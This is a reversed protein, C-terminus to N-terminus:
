LRVCPRCCRCVFAGLSRAHHCSACAAASAGEYILVMLAQQRIWREKEDETEAPHTYLSLMYLLRKQNVTLGQPPCCAVTGPMLQTAALLRICLVCLLVCLSMAVTATATLSTLLPCMPAILPTRM